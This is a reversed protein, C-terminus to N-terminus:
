ELRFPANPDQARTAVERYTSPNEVNTHDCAGAMVKTTRIVGTAAKEFVVEDLYPLHMGNEDVKWYYPNRRFVMLEDTKYDVPVWPGMTVVPLANPPLDDQFQQYDASPNYKPHHPKHIHAPAIVFYNENMDFLKYAPKAVPFTWKITYDDVKELNIDKGDIQWTSRKSPARTVGPDLILDNWTFMVDDATFPEGDSWKVGKILNMTLSMGDDSWQWDKALNPVPELKDGRLWMPGTKVLEEIVISNIGFYGQSVGAGWNWGETSAAWVDRMVGGYTGPGDSFFALPIVQPTEPLRQDVAPLTGAQVAKTIYDPETYKDLKKYVIMQDLNFLKPTRSGAVVQGPAYPIPGQISGAAASSTTTAAETTAAAAITAAPATTAAAATTAAPAPATTAAPATTPAAVPASTAPATTAVGAPPAPAAASCASLIAGAAGIGALRLFERRNIQKNDKM